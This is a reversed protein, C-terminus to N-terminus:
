SPRKDGASEVQLTRVDDILRSVSAANMGNYIGRIRRSGDLLFFSESHLFGPDDDARGEGLDEDAFYATRALAYMERPAGTLLSWKPAEAGVQEAFDRLKAVSDAEPTVSHSLLIVEPDDAFRANLRTLSAMTMPCIGSCDTFFFNAVTIRGEFDAEAVVEGDQDLLEFAPISHLDAPLADEPYWAPTFTAESYYPLASTTGEDAGPACATLILAPLSLVARALVGGALRRM